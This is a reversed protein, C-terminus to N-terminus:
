SFWRGTTTNYGAAAVNGITSIIDATPNYTAKAGKIPRPSKKPRQPKQWKSRPLALPKPLAPAKEPLLMRNADAQIDAGYKDAAIKKINVKMQKEASVLSEALIAQNRGTQAMAAQLVKGASVGPQGKMAAEGESQLAQVFLDQNQFATDMRQEEMFRAESELAVQAAINNFGLQKRYTEESKNYARMQNSFEYDRIQMGYNWDNLSTQEQWQLKAEENEINIKRTKKAYRYDRKAEKWQYDYVDKDYEYQAAAAKNAASARSGGGIISAIGGIAAGAVAGWVM